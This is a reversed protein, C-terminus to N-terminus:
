SQPRRMKKKLERDHQAQLESIRAKLRKETKRAENLKVAREKAKEKWHERSKHIRYIPEM